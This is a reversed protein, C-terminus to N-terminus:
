PGESNLNQQVFNKFQDAFWRWDNTRDIWADRIPNILGQSQMSMWITLNPDNREFWESNMRVRQNIEQIAENSLSVKDSMLKFGEIACFSHFRRNKGERAGVPFYFRTLNSSLTASPDFAFGLNDTRSTMVVGDIDAILDSQPAYEDMYDQRTSRGGSLPRALHWEAAASAVDGVWTTVDRQSLGSPLAQILKGPLGGAGAAGPSQSEAGAVIAVIVHTPDSQGGQPLTVEFEGSLTTIDNRTVAGGATVTKGGASSPLLYDWGTSHYKARMILQATQLANMGANSLEIKQVLDIFQKMTVVSPHAVTPIPDGYRQLISDSYSRQTVHTMEQTPRYHSLLRDAAAEAEREASSGQSDHTIKSQLGAMSQSQQVVHTLEHALLHRGTNSRNDFQGSAFVLDSGVTYALANVASASQAALSNTHVRVSSFDQGFRPEFFARTETDLPQGPSQLVDYVIPPVETVERDSTKKRALRRNVYEEFQTYEEVAQYLKSAQAHTTGNDLRINEAEEQEGYHGGATAIVDSADHIGSVYTNLWEIDKHPKDKSWSVADLTTVRTVLFGEAKLTNAVEIGTDGGYSHGIIEIPTDQTATRKVYDIAKEDDTWEWYTVGTHQMLLKPFLGLEVPGNSM